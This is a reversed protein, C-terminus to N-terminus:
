LEINTNYHKLKMVHDEMCQWAYRAKLSEISKVSHLFLSQTAWLKSADLGSFCIWHAQCGVM